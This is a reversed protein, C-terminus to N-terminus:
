PQLSRATSPRRAFIGSPSRDPSYSLHAGHPYYISQIVFVKMILDATIIYIIDTFMYSIICDGRIEYRAQYKSPYDVYLQIKDVFSLKIASWRTYSAARKPPARRAFSVEKEPEEPASAAEGDDDDALKSIAKKKRKGQKPKAESKRKASSARDSQEAQGPLGWWADVDEDTWGQFIYWERLEEETWAGAEWQM